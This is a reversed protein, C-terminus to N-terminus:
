SKCEVYESIYLLMCPESLPVRGGTEADYTDRTLASANCAPTPAVLSIAHIAEAQYPESWVLVNAPRKSIRKAVFNHDQLDLLSVWSSASACRIRHTGM